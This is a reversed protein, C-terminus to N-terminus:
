LSSRQPSGGRSAAADEAFSAFARTMALAALGVMATPVLMAATRGASQSVQGVVWSAPATGLVHMTFIVVSQATSAHEPPALDDVSAAMPAHYWSCFFLTAVGAVYLAPGAPSYICALASPVTLAMGLAIAALRGYVYRGRLIDAIRGGVLVGMVGGVGAIILLLTASAESMHKEHKLFDLLWALYGGAAFAMATTSGMLWRLTRRAVVARAAQVFATLGPSSAPSALRGGEPPSAEAARRPPVRLQAVLIAAVIGPAALALFGGTFGPGSGLGLGTAGGLFLGLNFIALSSAKRDGAFLEGLVSNAVPVVAATGFGAIARAVALSGLGGALTAAATAVSAILLGGAIVRRRDLHDGAWGMPLTALGHFGMYVTGLLGLEPDSLAYRARLDDYIAPVINRNGYNLLNVFALLLLAYWAYHRSVPVTVARESPPIM